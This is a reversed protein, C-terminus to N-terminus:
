APATEDQRAARFRSHFDCLTLGDFRQSAFSFLAHLDDYLTEINAETVFTPSGGPMFESSHLMFEVYDRGDALALELISIMDRLNRGNPRLWGRAPFLKTMGRRGTASGALRRRTWEIAGPWDRRVITMPVELLTSDGQRDIRDLYVFYAQDPFNTYDSGGNRSPDGLHTQWSVGPTVSCDILYGTDALIRAYTSNFAWRGARHSVPRIGFRTTLTDTLAVIKDRMLPADYEILYPLHYADNETIDALPPNNWAHLHMGIEARGSNQADRAFERFADCYAMEWNTLYTPKFGYTDCLSQFRPLYEANRTTIDRPRSWINDGETDITILFAPRNM